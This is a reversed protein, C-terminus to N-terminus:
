ASELKSLISKAMSKSSSVVETAGLAEIVEAMDDQFYRVILKCNKNIDRVRKTIVVADETRDLAIVVARAKAVGAEELVHVDKPDEMIVPEGKEVLKQVLRDNDEILVYPMNREVLSNVLRAGVHSYGIVVTHNKMQKALLRCGEKPNYRELFSQFVFAFTIGVIVAMGWKEYIQSFWNQPFSFYVASLLADEPQLGLALYSLFGFGFWASVIALPVKNQKLLIALKIRSKRLSM